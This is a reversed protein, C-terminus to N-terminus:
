PYRWRHGARSSASAAAPVGEHSRRRPRDARSYLMKNTRPARPPSPAHYLPLSILVDTRHRSKRHVTFCICQEAKIRTCITSCLDEEHTRSRILSILCMRRKELAFLAFRVSRYPICRRVESTYADRTFSRGTYRLGALLYM